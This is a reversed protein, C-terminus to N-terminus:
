RRKNKKSGKRSGKKSGKRKRGGKMSTAPPPTHPNKTPLDVPIQGKGSNAQAYAGDLPTYEVGGGSIEVPQKESGGITKGCSGGVKLPNEAGGVKLHDESGGVTRKGSRTKRMARLRAMKMKMARSGKKGGVSKSVYDASNGGMSTPNKPPLVANAVASLPNGGKKINGSMGMPASNTDSDM